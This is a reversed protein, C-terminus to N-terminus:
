KQPHTPAAQAPLPSQPSMLDLKYMQVFTTTGLVAIAGVLVGTLVKVQTRLQQIEQTHRQLGIQAVTQGGTSPASQSRRSDHSKSEAAPSAAPKPQPNAPKFAVKSHLWNAILDPCDQKFRHMAYRRFASKSLTAMSKVASNVPRMGVKTNILNTTGIDYLSDILLKITVDENEILQGLLLRVEQMRVAERREEEPSKLIPM